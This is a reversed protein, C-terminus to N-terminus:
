QKLFKPVLRKPMYELLLDRLENKKSIDIYKTIAGSIYSAQLQIAIDDFSKEDHANLFFEDFLRQQLDVFILEGTNNKSWFKCVRGNSDYRFTQSRWDWIDISGMESKQWLIFRIITGHEGAIAKKNGMSIIVQSELKEM